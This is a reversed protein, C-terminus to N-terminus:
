WAPRAAKSLMGSPGPREGDVAAPSSRKTLMASLDQIETWTAITSAALVGKGSSSTAIRATRM